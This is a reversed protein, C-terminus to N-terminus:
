VVSKRDIAQIILEFGPLNKYPGIDGFATMSAYIVGKNIKKIADYGLGLKDMKGPRFNEVIVDSKSALKLAIDIGKHTKLDLVISKKNRNVCQFFASQGNKFPPGNQRTTDGEQPKEVKIVDAGLDGLLSTSFPGALVHSFDLVAIGDLPRNM